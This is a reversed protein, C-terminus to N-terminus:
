GSWKAFAPPANYSYDKGKGDNAEKEEVAAPGKGRTDGRCVPLKRARRAPATAMPKAGIKTRNLSTPGTLVANQRNTNARGM